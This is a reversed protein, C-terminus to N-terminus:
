QCDFVLGPNPLEPTVGDVGCQSVGEQPEAGAPPPSAVCQGSVCALDVYEAICFVCADDCYPWVALAESFDDAHVVQSDATCPNVVV